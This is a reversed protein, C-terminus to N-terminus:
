IIVYEGVAAASSAVVTGTFAYTPGRHGGRWGKLLREAM